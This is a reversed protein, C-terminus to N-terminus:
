LQMVAPLRGSPRDVLVLLRQERGLTLWVSGAGHSAIRSISV